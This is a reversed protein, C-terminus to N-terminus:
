HTKLYRDFWEITRRTLDRVNAPSIPGHGEGWYKVYDVDKRLRNLAAFMEDYQRSFGGVDMDTGVLLVPAEIQRAYAIPSIKWYHGPDDWPTFGIGFQDKGEYRTSQGYWPSLSPYFLEAVGITFYDSQLNAIGNISVVAKFRRSHGAIWLSSFGAGSAGIIGLRDADVFGEAVAADIARDVAAVIGSLPGGERTAVGPAAVKLLAYGEAVLPNRNEYSSSQLDPDKPCSPRSDPYAYVLTPYRRGAVYDHPLTLCSVHREGSGASYSISRNSPKAIDALLQNIRAVVVIDGNARRMKLDTGVSHVEQYAVLNGAEAIAVVERRGEGAAIRTVTGGDYDFLNLSGSDLAQYVANTGFAERAGSRPGRPKLSQAGVKLGAAVATTRGTADLKRVEDDLVLYAGSATV